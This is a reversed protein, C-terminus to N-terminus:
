PNLTGVGLTGRRGGTLPGFILPEPSYRGVEVIYKLNLIAFTLIRINVSRDNTTGKSLSLQHIMAILIDGDLTSFAPCTFTQGPCQEIVRRLHSWIAM